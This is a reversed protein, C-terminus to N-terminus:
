EHLVSAVLAPLEALEGPLVTRVNLLVSDDRVRGFVSPMARRLGRALDAAPVSPARIRVARSPIGEDPASGSGVYALDDAVDAFVDAANTLSTCLEAAAKAVDAVPTSLMRYFPIAERHTGNIFHVLTAELGAVTLKGVRFMRAFPNRRVRDITDGDGCIIGSQPGSILKDGSFCVVTAGASISDRVLPEDPVGFESLAVLAGSGLDDIVPIGHRRGLEALESIDPTSSFGRIRYNSTHVHIIAGTNEGIANEYDRLHTKNTTGVERLIASSREMTDPLRFSGGIEILQGRSVIVERGAALTNLILMTAAANNNVVTAAQCGTLQRLMTEVTAERLCRQGTDIDTQLATYGSSSSLAAVAEACLPARGLGTHLLIGTANIVRRSQPGAVRLLRQRLDRAIADGSPVCQLSDGLVARRIEDLLQRVELKVMGEGFEACLDVGPRGSLLASVSPIQRLLITNTHQM